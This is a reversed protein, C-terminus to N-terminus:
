ISKSSCVSQLAAVTQAAAVRIDFQSHIHSRCANALTASRRGLLRSLGDAFAEISGVAVVEGLNTAIEGSAGCDTVVAPVGCSMAEAVVNPFGERYSTLALVDFAPYISSTDLQAPLFHVRGEIGLSRALEMLADLRSPEGNGVCILHCNLDKASAQEFAHLLLEHGKVPDFRGVHGIITAEPSIMWMRRWYARSSASPAFRAVDIGNPIITGAPANPFSRQFTELGSHSNAILLDARASSRRIIARVIREKLTSPGIDYDTTRLGLVVRPRLGLPLMAVAALAMLWQVEMFAYIVQPQSKRLRHVFEPLASVSSGTLRRLIHLRLRHAEVFSRLVGDALTVLEVTHGMAQLEAALNIAQTEAGGVGLGGLLISVRLPREPYPSGYGSANSSMTFNV